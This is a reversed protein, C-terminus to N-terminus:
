HAHRAQMAILLPIETRCPACWTAWFNILVVKNDIVRTSWEQGTSTLLDFSIITDAGASIDTVSPSRLQSAWYGGAAAVALVLLTYVVLSKRPNDVLIDSELLRSCPSSATRTLTATSANQWCNKVKHTSFCCRQPVM